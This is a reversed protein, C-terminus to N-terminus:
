TPIQNTGAPQQSRLAAGARALRAWFYGCALVAVIALAQASYSFVRTPALVSEVFPDTLVMEAGVKALVACGVYNLFPYREIILCLLNSAFFVVPISVGLGIFLLFFNGGSAGAVALMNDLSMTINAIVLIKVAQTTKSITEDILTAGTRLLLLTVALYLVISGGALRVFSHELLRAAFYTLCVSLVITICASFAIARLRLHRPLSRLAVAVVMANDVSRVLNITIISLLASIWNWDLSIAGLNGLAM